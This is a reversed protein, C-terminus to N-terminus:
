THIALAQHSTGGTLQCKDHMQPFIVVLIPPSPRQPSYAIYAKKHNIAYCDVVQMM